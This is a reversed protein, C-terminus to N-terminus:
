YFLDWSVADGKEVNKNLKKGIIDKEYKPALGYGPRIRKIDKQTIKKNKAISRIFYLSRRFIKNDEEKKSRGFSEKGLAMWAQTTIRKLEELENPEISFESDPGKDKKNLIFHKEIASAGMAISTIAATNSITHDSLGVEIQFKDRLYKINKLNAEETPAPYSSVCHFLLLDQCGNKKATSVAEEIEKINAMGTSMLIPKGKKAVYEILPLDCLEFSAIKYAPTELQELLDVATEDFPSSFITLEIKKAYEFLEEHWEYPTHAEKYLEYLGRGKWLGEKIIFEPNDCDITITDPTYTQIKVADAGCLKASHIINLANDISGNHNGSMEAVIFPTNGNGIKRGNLEILSDIVDKM